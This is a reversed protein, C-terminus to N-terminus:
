VALPEALAQDEARVAGDGRRAVAVATWDAQVNVILFFDGILANEVVRRAIPQLGYRRAEEAALADPAVVEVKGGGIPLQQREFIVLQGLTNAVFCLRLYSAGDCFSINREHVCQEFRVARGSRHRNLLDLGAGDVGVLSFDVSLEAQELQNARRPLRYACQSCCRSCPWRAM